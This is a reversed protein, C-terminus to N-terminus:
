SIAFDMVVVKRDTNDAPETRTFISLMQRGDRQYVDLHPEGSFGNDTWLIQYTPAEGDLQAGVITLTDDRNGPLAFFLTDTDLSAVVAGRAGTNTPRPGPLACRSWQGTSRRYYHIWVERERNLVHFGGKRDVAQAEQNMIGSNMPIDFVILGNADPYISEGQRLSALVQGESNLFTEGMDDSYAYFLNYNNEPGNPGANAKHRTSNPDHVGEYEIFHRYTGSVHIRGHAYDIGNTYPSNEQGTLFQGLYTYEHTTSTYKFLLESGAGARSHTIGVRYALLLDNEVSLFRPYTVERFLSEPCTSSPLHHLTPGFLAPTWSFADPQNAVGEISVRFRLRDCHHDFSVHITGDGACIGISITNHGDDVTQEYDRFTLTEWSPSPGDPRRRSINVLLPGGSVRDDKNSYFCVYQWGRYSLIANQQFSNANIRHQRKADLALDSSSVLQLM